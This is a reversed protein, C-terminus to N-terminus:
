PMLQKPFQQKFPAHSDPQLLYQFSVPHSLFVFYYGDYEKTREDDKKEEADIYRHLFGNRTIGDHDNRILVFKIVRNVKIMSTHDAFPGIRHRYGLREGFPVFWVVM